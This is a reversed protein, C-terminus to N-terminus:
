AILRRLQTTLPATNGNFSVIMASLFSDPDLRDFQLGHGAQHALLAMFAVQARGNGDRFPHIANLDALFDAAGKAFEEPTRDRLYHQQRLSSFLSRMERRIHEPFCFMNGDKGIRVTRFRGAWRYVDQFLHRHIACYHTVSLRGTPLAEDSRQATSVAEFADLATQDRLDPINKLVTSDPYCYPDAM